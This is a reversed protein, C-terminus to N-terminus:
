DVEFLAAGLLPALELWSIGAEPRRLPLHTANLPEPVADLEDALWTRWPLEDTPAAALFLRRLPTKPFHERLFSATLRLDRQISGAQATEESLAKYRYLFPEGQRFFCLTYADPLIVAVAALHEAQVKSELGSIVALTTNTIWGLEVGASAFAEEIQTLLLEIAFGLLLLRPEEQGPFPTVETASLRLEEVRFPVLRKLKFRLVEDRAAAQRPLETIETFTLRLWADPLVLSARRVPHTLRAVSQQVVERFRQPDRLPAGLPGSGLVDPALAERTYRMLSFGHPTAQFHAYRLEDGDLAFVHPPAAVATFGFAQSIWSLSRTSRM